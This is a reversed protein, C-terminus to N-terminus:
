FSLIGVPVSREADSSGISEFAFAYTRLPIVTALKGPVSDTRVSLSQCNEVDSMIATARVCIFSKALCISLVLRVLVMGDSGVGRFHSFPTPRRLTQQPPMPFLGIFVSSVRAKGEERPCM